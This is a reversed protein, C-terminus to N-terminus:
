MFITACRVQDDVRVLEIIHEMLGDKLWGPTAQGTVWEELSGQVKTPSTTTGKGKTVLGLIHQNQEVGEKQCGAM